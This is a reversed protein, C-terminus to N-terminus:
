SRKQCLWRLKDSASGDPTWWSKEFGIPERVTKMRDNRYNAHIHVVINGWFIHSFFKWKKSRIKISRKIEFIPLFYSNQLNKAM